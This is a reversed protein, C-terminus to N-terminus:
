LHTIPHTLLALVKELFSAPTFGWLQPDFDDRYLTIFARDVDAAHVRMFREIDDILLKTEEANYNRVFHLVIEEISNGFLDYDQGLFVRVFTSLSPFEDIMM